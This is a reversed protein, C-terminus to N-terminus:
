TKGNDLHITHPDIFTAFSNFYKVKLKTLESKFGWNLAKIHKNISFMMKDWNHEGKIDVSTGSLDQETRADALIAAYHM